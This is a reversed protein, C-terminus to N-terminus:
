LEYESGDIVRMNAAYRSWGSASKYASLSEAPVYINTGSLDSYSNIAPPTAVRIILTTINWTYNPVSTINARIDLLGCHTFRLSSSGLSSVQESIVIMNFSSYAFAQVSVYTM